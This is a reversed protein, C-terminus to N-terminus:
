SRLWVSIINHFYYANYLLQNLWYLSRRSNALEYSVSREYCTITFARNLGWLQVYCTRKIQPYSKLLMQGTWVRADCRYIHTIVQLQLMKTWFIFSMPSRDFVGSFQTFPHPFLLHMGQIEKQAGRDQAAKIKAFSCKLKAWPRHIAWEQVGM